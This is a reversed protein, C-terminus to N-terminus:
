GIKWKTKNPLVKENVGIMYKSLYNLSKYLKKSAKENNLLELIAGTLARTSPPYNLALQALRKQESLSLKDIKIKLLEIAKNTETGTINRIDKIADLIQLLPINLETIDVYAKVFRVKVRGKQYPKRFEHTAITYENSMQTTLGMQNYAASGTLYATLNGNDNIISEIIQSERLPVEGFKGVQPKFYKGRGFRKIIGKSALRSFAVAVAGMNNPAVKFDQYSFLIGSEINEIQNSITKAVSM